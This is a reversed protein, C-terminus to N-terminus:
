MGRWFVLTKVYWVIQCFLLNIKNKNLYPLPPMNCMPTLAELSWFLADYGRSISSCSIIVWMFCINQSQFEPEKQSCSANKSVLSSESWGWYAKNKFVECKFKYWLRKNTVRQTGWDHVYVHKWIGQSSNHSAM